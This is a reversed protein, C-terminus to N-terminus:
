NPGTRTFAGQWIVPAPTAGRPGRRQGLNLETLPVRPDPVFGVGALADILENRTLFMQPRGSFQGFTFRQGPEPWADDALTSRSFTFVFLGGGPAVVRAAEALGRGLEADSAALNWVGHAVALDFEGSTFPLQDVRGERFEAGRVGAELAKTRAAAVMPAASDIGWVRHGAQALPVANRGAGCGLDVISLGRGAARDSAWKLLTQNPEATVFRAVTAPQAWPNM